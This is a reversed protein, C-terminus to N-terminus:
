VRESLELLGRDGRQVEVLCFSNLDFCWCSWSPCILLHFKFTPCTGPYPQSSRGLFFCFQSEYTPLSFLDSRGIVDRLNEWREGMLRNGYEFFNDSFNFGFKQYENCLFEMIKATRFQSDKSVGISNLEIYKTIKMAVDRDKVLAWSWVCLYILWICSNHTLYKYFIIQFEGLAPDLTALANPSLSICLMM